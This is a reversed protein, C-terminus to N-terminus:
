GTLRVLQEAEISTGLISVKPIQGRAM